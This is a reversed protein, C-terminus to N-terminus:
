TLAHSSLLQTTAIGMVIGGLLMSLWMSIMGKWRQFLFYINLTSDVM